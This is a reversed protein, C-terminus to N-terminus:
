TTTGVEIKKPKARETKPLRVELLGNRYTAEAQGANVDTPLEVTRTFSGYSREMLRYSEGAEKREQRKEGKLTVTRGVLSVDVGRPDLGPLEARVIFEEDTESLDIDPGWIMGERIMPAESWFREFMRDMERRLKELEGGRWPVLAM